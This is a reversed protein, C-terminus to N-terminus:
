AAALSGIFGFAVLGIKGFLWGGIVGGILGLLLDGILGFGRGRTIKGCLWRRWLSGFSGRRIIAGWGTKWPRRCYFYRIM